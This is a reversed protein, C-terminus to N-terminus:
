DVKAVPGFALEVGLRGLEVLPLARSSTAPAGRPATPASTRDRPPARRRRDRHPLHHSHQPLRARARRRSRRRSPRRISDVALLEVIRGILGTEERLERIARPKPISASTSAAAPCRGRGPGRHDDSLRCVLLRRDDDVCVNYAAVRQIREAPTRSM